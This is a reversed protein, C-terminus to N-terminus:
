SDMFPELNWPSAQRDKSSQEYLTASDTNAATLSLVAMAYAASNRQYEFAPPAKGPAPLEFCEIWVTTGDGSFSFSGIECPLKYTRDAATLTNAAAWILGFTFLFLCRVYELALALQGADFDM